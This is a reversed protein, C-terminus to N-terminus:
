EWVLTEANFTGFTSLYALAAQQSDIEVREIRSLSVAEVHLQDRLVERHYTLSM